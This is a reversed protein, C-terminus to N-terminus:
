ASATAEPEFVYAANRHLGSATSAPLARGALAGAYRAYLWSSCAASVCAGCVAVFAGAPEMLPALGHRRAEGGFYCVAGAAALVPLLALLQTLWVSWCHGRTDAWADRLRLAGGAAVHTTALSLRGCVFFAVGISVIACGGILATVNISVAPWYHAQLLVAGVALSVGAAVIALFLVIMGYALVGYRWAAGGAPADDGAPTLRRELLLFRIADVALAPFVAARILEFVGLPLYTVLRLPPVPDPLLAAEAYPALWAIALVVLALWPRRSAFRWGDRWAGKVCEWFTVSKM